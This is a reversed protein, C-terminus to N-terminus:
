SLGSALDTSTLLKESHLSTIYTVLHARVDAPDDDFVKNLMTAFIAAGSKGNRAKLQKYLTFDFKDDEEAGKGEEEDEPARDAKMKAVYAEFNAKVAEGMEEDSIEM